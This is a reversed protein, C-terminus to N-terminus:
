ARFEAVKRAARTSAAKEQPSPYSTDRSACDSSDILDAVAEMMEKPFSSPLTFGWDGAEAIKTAIPRVDSWFGRLECVRLGSALHTLSWDEDWQLFAGLGRYQWGKREVPTGSNMAIHFEGRHWKRRAM